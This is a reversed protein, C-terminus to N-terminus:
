IKKYNSASLLLAFLQENEGVITYNYIITPENEPVECFSLLPFENLHKTLLPYQFSLQFSIMLLTLTFVYFVCVCSHLYISKTTQFYHLSLPSQQKGNLCFQQHFPYGFNTFANIIIAFHTSLLNRKTQVVALAQQIMKRYDGCLVTRMKNTCM